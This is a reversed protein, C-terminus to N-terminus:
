SILHGIPDRNVRANESGGRGRRYLRTRGDTEKEGEMSVVEGFFLGFGALAFERVLKWDCM